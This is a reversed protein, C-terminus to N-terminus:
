EGSYSAFPNILGVIEARTSALDWVKWGLAIRVCRTSSYPLIAYFCWCNDCTVFIYGSDGGGSGILGGANTSSNFEGLPVAGCLYAFNNGPNRVVLWWFRWWFTRERGNAHEPGRWGSIGTLGDGNIGDRDNDWWQAWAPLHNSDADCFLLAIPVVIFGLLDVIISLAFLILWDLYIM